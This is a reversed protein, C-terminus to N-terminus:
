QGWLVVVSVMVVVSPDAQEFSWLVPIADPANNVKFCRQLLHYMYM